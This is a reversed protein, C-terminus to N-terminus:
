QEHKTNNGTDSTLDREKGHQWLSKQLLSRARALRSRVTGIPIELTDAIEQYTMGEIDSLVAVVRYKVALTDLAKTIDASLTNNLFDQEPTGWWLLFPQHLQEFLSFPSDDDVPEETYSEHRARKEAKRCESIFHNTMIRLLWHVFRDRDKLSDIKDLGRTVAEAVLDEANAPNKCLRLAAGYLRDLCSEINEEFFYRNSSEMALPTKVPINLKDCDNRNLAIEM